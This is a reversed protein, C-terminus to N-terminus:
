LVHVEPAIRYEAWEGLLQSKLIEFRNLMLDGRSWVSSLWTERTPLM